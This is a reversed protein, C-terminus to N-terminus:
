PVASIPEPLKVNSVLLKVAKNASDVAGNIYSAYETSCHEGAFLLRGTLEPEGASGYITTYHGPKPCSYSGLAFPHSNWHQYVKNGDFEKAAGLYIADLDALATKDQHDKQEAGRKGSLYNVMIGSKGPQACASDWFCESAFDTYVSGTSKREGTRWPRSKFGLMLKSNTGYGWDSIAAKKVPSLEVGKMEVLRLTSFPVTMIVRDASVEVTRGGGQDFVLKMHTGHDRLAVLRHGLNTPVADKIAASLARTLQENGGKIRKSEDSSGYVQFGDETSPNILTLLNIASQRDTDAGCMGMYTCDILDKLWKDADVGALYQAISTRDLRQVKPNQSIRSSYTPVVASDSLRLIQIDRIIAKALPEFAAIIEKDSRVKGGFLFMDRTLKPDDIVEQIELGLEESLAILDSHVSDILEGGRECFMGESNFKDQTWVRGGLRDSGEYISTKLGVQRLRYAATLGAVGGGVIVVRGAEKVDASSLRADRGSTRCGALLATSGVVGLGAGRVFGRRTFGFNSRSAVAARVGVPSLIADIQDWSLHGQARAIALELLRNTRRGLVTRAM